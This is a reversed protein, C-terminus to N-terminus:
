DGMFHVAPWYGVEVSQGGTGDRHKEIDIQLVRQGGDGALDDCSLHLIIDPDHILQSSSRITGDKGVSSLAVIPTDEAHAITALTRSVRDILDTSSFVQGSTGVLQVYDVMVAPAVGDRERMARVARQLAEASTDAGADVDDAVVVLRSFLDKARELTAERCAAKSDPLDGEDALFDETGLAHQYDVMASLCTLARRLVAATGIELSLVVVSRVALLSLAVNILLDTKGVGGKGYALVFEAGLGHLADSLAQPAITAREAASRFIDKYDALPTDCTALYRRPIRTAPM